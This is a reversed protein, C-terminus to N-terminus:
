RGQGGVLGFWNAWAILQQHTKDCGGQGVLDLGVKGGGAHSLKRQRKRAAFAQQWKTHTYGQSVLWPRLSIVLVSTICTCILGLSQAEELVTTIFRSAGITTSDILLDTGQELGAPVLVGYMTPVKVERGISMVVCLGLCLATQGWILIQTYFLMPMGEALITNFVQRANKLRTGSSYLGLTLAVFCFSSLTDQFKADCRAFIIAMNEGRSQPCHWVFDSGFSGSLISPPVGFGSTWRSNKLYAHLAKGVVLCLFIFSLVVTPGLKSAWAELEANGYTETM